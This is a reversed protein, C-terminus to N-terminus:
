SDQIQPKQAWGHNNQNINKKKSLDSSSNM